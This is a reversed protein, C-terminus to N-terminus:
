ELAKIIDFVWAKGPESNFRHPKNSEIFSPHEKLSAQLDKVPFILREENIKKLAGAFNIYLRGEEERVDMFWADPM